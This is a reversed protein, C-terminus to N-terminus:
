RSGPIVVPGVAVAPPASGPVLESSIGAAPNTRELYADADASFSSLDELDPDHESPGLDFLEDEPEEPVFIPEASV